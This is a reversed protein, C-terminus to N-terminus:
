RSQIIFCLSINFSDITMTKDPSKRAYGILRNTIYTQISTKSNGVSKAVVILVAKKVITAIILTKVM